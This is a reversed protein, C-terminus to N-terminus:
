RGKEVIRLTASKDIMVQLEGRFRKLQANEIRLTDGVSITDIQENWLPLKVTGSQDMITATSLLLGEGWRSVIAKTISKETVKAQLNFRKTEPSLDKIMLDEPRPSIKKTVPYSEFQLDCLDVKGLYELLQTTLKFQAIIRDGRTVLFVYGDKTMQRRKILVDDFSAQGKVWAFRICEFLRLTEIKHKQSIRVLYIFSIMDSTSHWPASPRGRTGRLTDMM